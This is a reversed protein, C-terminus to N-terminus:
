MDKLEDFSERWISDVYTKSTMYSLVILWSTLNRYLSVMVIVISEKILVHMSPLLYAILWPIKEDLAM